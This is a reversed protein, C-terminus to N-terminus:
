SIKRYKQYRRELREENKLLQLENIKSVLKEKLDKVFDDSIYRIGGAPEKIIEDVIGDGRIDLM